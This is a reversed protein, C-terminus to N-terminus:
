PDCILSIEFFRWNSVGKLHQHFRGAPDGIGWGGSGEACGFGTGEEPAAKTPGEQLEPLSLSCAFNGAPDEGGDAGGGGFSRLDGPVLWLCELACVDAQLLCSCAVMTCHGLALGLPPCAAWLGQPTVQKLLDSLQLEDKQGALEEKVESYTDNIIALFM